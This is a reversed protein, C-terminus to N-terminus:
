NSTEAAAGCPLIPLLKDIGYFAAQDASIGINKLRPGHNYNKFVVNPKRWRRVNKLNDFIKLTFEGDEISLSGKLITGDIARRIQRLRKKQHETKPDAPRRTKPDYLHIGYGDESDEDDKRASFEYTVPRDLSVRSTGKIELFWTRPHIRRLTQVPTGPIIGGVNRWLDQRYRIEVGCAGGATEIEGSLAGHTLISLEPKLQMMGLARAMRYDFVKRKVPTKLEYYQYLKVWSWGVFFLIVGFLLVLKGNRVGHSGFIFAIMGGIYLIVFAIFFYILMSSRLSDFWSISAYQAMARNIFDTVPM